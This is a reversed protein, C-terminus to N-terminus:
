LRGYSDEFREIDDEGLYSGSQVEIIELPISGSNSLRHVKGLPIYTSQNETLTITEDGCVVEATGKVVIWHEARHQHRQLSLSAGPKVQIRKVKFRDGEDISDYWGWPRHVKRPLIHECRKQTELAIVMEKVHQSESKDAVLVADATEVIILNNVGVTGVLRSGAHVFTNTTGSMLTDGISVNGWADRASVQWVAEWSGLDSWGADLPVMKLSFQSGLLAQQASLPEMVAYDVSVSPIKSFDAKSPRIFPLDDTRNLWATQTLEALGSNFAAIARLWVSARLVFMGSNWYYRGESLYQIATEVDPKEVFQDVDFLAIPSPSQINSKVKIYGYGTEPKDPTIGLLVISGDAAARISIQLAETFAQPDMVTQDAPTVVLIPDEGSAVAHLAALTLAPATNRGIPELLLTAAVDPIERLQDLALFRHEENTVILTDALVIDAAGLHNTREIAQQFLSTTGSLVLFQKPFGARSLPWLRTGSGGCLIVPCVKHLM